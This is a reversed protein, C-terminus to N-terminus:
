VMFTFSCGGTGSGLELLSKGSFDLAPHVRQLQPLLGCCFVASDWAISGLHDARTHDQEVTVREGNGLDVKLHRKLASM